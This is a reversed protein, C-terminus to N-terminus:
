LNKSLGAAFIRNSMVRFHRMKFIIVGVEHEIIRVDAKSPGEVSVELTGEGAERTYVNFSLVENVEGVTLDIGGIRAKYAGGEGFRGVTFQFPSGSFTRNLFGRGIAM